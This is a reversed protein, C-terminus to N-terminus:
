GKALEALTAVLSKINPDIEDGGGAAAKQPARNINIIQNSKNDIGSAGGSELYAALAQYIRNIPTTNDAIKELIGTIASLLQSVLEPSIGKGTNNNSAASTAIQNLMNKSADAINTAGGAFRTFPIIRGTTPDVFAPKTGASGARSRM